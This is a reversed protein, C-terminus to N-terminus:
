GTGHQHRLSDNRCRKADHGYHPRIRLRPWKAAQPRGAKRMSAPGHTGDLRLRLAPTSVGLPDGAPASYRAAQRAEVSAAPGSASRPNLGRPQPNTVCNRLASLGRTARDPGDAQGNPRPGLRRSIRRAGTPEAPRVEVLATQVLVKVRALRCKRAGTWRQTKTGPSHHPPRSVSWHRSSFQSRM